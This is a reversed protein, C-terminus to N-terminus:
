KIKNGLKDRRTQKRVKAIFERNIEEQLIKNLENSIEAQEEPTMKDWLSGNSV